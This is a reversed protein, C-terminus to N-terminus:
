VTKKGVSGLAQKYLDVGLEKSLPKLTAELEEIHIPGVGPASGSERLDRGKKRPIRPGRHKRNYPNVGLIDKVKM